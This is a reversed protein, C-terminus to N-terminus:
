EIKLENNKWKMQMREPGFNDVIVEIYNHSNGYLVEDNLFVECVGGKFKATVYVGPSWFKPLSIDQNEIRGTYQILSDAPSHYLRSEQVPKSEILSINIKKQASLSVFNIFLVLSAIVTKGIQM